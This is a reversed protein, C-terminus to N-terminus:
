IFLKNRARQSRKSLYKPDEFIWRHSSRLEPLEFQYFARNFDSDTLYVHDRNSYSSRDKSPITIGYDRFRLEDKRFHLGIDGNTFFTYRREGQDGLEDPRRQCLTYPALCRWECDQDEFWQPMYRELLNILDQPDESSEEEKIVRRMRMETLRDKFKVTGDSYCEFIVKPDLKYPVLHADEKTRELKLRQHTVQFNAVLERKAFPLSNMTGYMKRKNNRLHVCRRGRITAGGSSSVNRPLASGSSNDLNGVFYAMPSNVSSSDM